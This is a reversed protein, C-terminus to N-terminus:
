EKVRDLIKVIDEKTPKIPNTLTCKDNLAIEAMEFKLDEFNSLDIKTEKLNKPMNLTKQLSVIKNILYKVNSRVNKSNSGLYIAIESYRKAAESVESKYDKMNANFEIVYPLLIGNARGHPIHYKGGLIHAISHNIGLSASNFAMGAMCSANHMKERAKLDQGNEYCKQLYEFVLLISKIALADTFDNAKTSVYAEIAHTLVDLGTDATIHKPVTKTLNPDLIAIDPLLEDSVLPYKIGKDADTIVSFSTVESGTGSTTPISIFKVNDLNLISKGFHIIAKTADIVSGGGIALVVDPKFDKISDIGKTVMSIDPDPLIDSFVKINQSSILETISDLTGNSVMFSDIVIFVNLNNLTKLYDLSNQDFYIETNIKFSKM